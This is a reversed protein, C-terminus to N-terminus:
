QVVLKGTELLVGSSNFLQYILLGPALGAINITDPMENFSKLLRGSIDFIRLRSDTPIGQQLMFKLEGNRRAPNRECVLRM